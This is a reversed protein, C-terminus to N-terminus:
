RVAIAVLVIVLIIVLLKRVPPEALHPGLPCQVGNFTKRGVVKTKCRKCTVERFARYTAGDVIQHLGLLGILAAIVYAWPYVQPNFM